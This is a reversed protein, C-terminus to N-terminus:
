IDMMRDIDPAIERGRSTVLSVGIFLTISVVFAVLGAEIGYPLSISAVNFIVNIALSAVIAV